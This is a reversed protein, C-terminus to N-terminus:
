LSETLKHVLVHLRVGRATPALEPAAGGALAYRRETIALHTMSALAFGLRKRSVFAVDQTQQPAVEHNVRQREGRVLGLPCRQLLQPWGKLRVAGRGREKDIPRVQATGQNADERGCADADNSSWPGQPIPFPKGLLLKLDLQVRALHRARSPHYHWQGLRPAADM